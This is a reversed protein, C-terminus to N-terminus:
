FGESMDLPRPDLEAAQRMVTLHVAELIRVVRIRIGVRRWEVLIEHIKDSSFAFFAAGRHVRKNVKRLASVWVAHEVVRVNAIEKADSANTYGSYSRLINM